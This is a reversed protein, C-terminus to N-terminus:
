RSSCIGTLAQRSCIASHTPPTIAVIPPTHTLHARIHEMLKYGDLDPLFIDMLIADFNHEVLMKMTTSAQVM